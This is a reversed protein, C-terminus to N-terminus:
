YSFLNGYEKVVIPRTALTRGTWPLLTESFKEAPDAARRPEPLRWSLTFM